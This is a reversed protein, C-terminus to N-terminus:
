GLYDNVTMCREYKELFFLLFLINSESNSYNMWVSKYNIKDIISNALWDIIKLLWYFFDILREIISYEIHYEINESVWKSYM